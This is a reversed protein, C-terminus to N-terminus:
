SVTRMCTGEVAIDVNLYAVARAQLVKLYHEVWEISGVLGYEEAGWSCFVVSRRPRWRGAPATFYLSIRIPKCKSFCCWFYFFYLFVHVYMFNILKRTTIDCGFQLAAWHQNVDLRWAWRRM